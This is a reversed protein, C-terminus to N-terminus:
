RAPGRVDTMVADGSRPAPVRRSANGSSAKEKAAKEKDNVTARHHGVACGVAAGALGHHGAVHGAVGGVVAGKICGKAEVLTSASGLAIMIAFVSLKLKM